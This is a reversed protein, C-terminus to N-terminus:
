QGGNKIENSYQLAVGLQLNVGILALARVLINLMDFDGWVPDVSNIPDYVPLGNIDLNYAWIIGPPKRIYSMRANGINEPYFQFGEHNILYIPNELIPDISSRYWASQRDQQVFRINYFGYLSWMADVLEFDSPFPAIGSSPNPSLVTGYILPSLSQRIMENQGFEVVAIPRNVQYKQYEGKLYDTYSRQATPMLVTNFDDPSIYGDQLNKAAAYLLFNYCYDATM